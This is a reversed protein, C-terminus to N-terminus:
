RWYVVGPYRVDVYQIHTREISKGELLASFRPIVSSAPEELSIRVDWGERTVVEAYPGSLANKKIYWFPITTKKTLFEFWEITRTVLKPSIFPLETPTSTPSTQTNYVIVPYNGKKERVDDIHPEHIRAIIEISDRVTGDALTTTTHIVEERWESENVRRIMELPVGDQGVFRYSVGDDLIANSLRETVAISLHSPFRKEVRADELSYTQMLWTQIQKVDALIYAQRVMPMYEILPKTLYERVGQEIDKQSLRETGVVSITSLAFFPHFLLLGVMSGLSLLGLLLFLFRRWPRRAQQVRYPNPAKPGFEDQKDDRSKQYRWKRRVKYPNPLM